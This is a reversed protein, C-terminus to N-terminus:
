LGGGGFRRFELGFLGKGLNGSDGLKREAGNEKERRGRMAVTARAIQQSSLTGLGADCLLSDSIGACSGIGFTDGGSDSFAFIMNCGRSQVRLDYPESRSVTIFVFFSPPSSTDGNKAIRDSYMSLELFLWSKSIMEPRSAM